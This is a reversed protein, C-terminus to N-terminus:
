SFGERPFERWVERRAQDIEEAGIYIKLDACLGLASELPHVPPLTRTNLSQVFDLATQQKEEPLSHWKSLLEKEMQLATM